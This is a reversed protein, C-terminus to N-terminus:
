RPRRRWVARLPVSPALVALVCEHPEERAQPLIEVDAAAEHWPLAVLDNSPLTGQALQRLYAAARNVNPDGGHLREFLKALEEWNTKVAPGVDRTPMIGQCAFQLQILSGIVLVFADLQFDVM